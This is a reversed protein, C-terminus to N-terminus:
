KSVSESVWVLVDTFGKRGLSGHHQGVTGVGDHGDLRAPVM